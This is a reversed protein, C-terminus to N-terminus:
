FKPVYDQPSIGLIEWRKEAEKLMFEPTKGHPKFKPRGLPTKNKANKLVYNLSINKLRDDFLTRVYVDALACLIDVEHQLQVAKFVSSYKIMYNIAQKLRKLFPRRLRLNEKSGQEKILEGIFYCTLDTGFFPCTKAHLCKSCLPSDFCTIDEMYQKFSVKQQKHKNRFEKSHKYFNFKKKKAFWKIAFTHVQDIYKTYFPNSTSTQGQSPKIPKRKKM